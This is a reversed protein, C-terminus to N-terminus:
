TFVTRKVRFVFRGNEAAFERRQGVVQKNPSHMNWRSKDRWNYNVFSRELARKIIDMYYRSTPRNSNVHVTFQVKPNPQFLADRFIVIYVRMVLNVTCIETVKIQTQVFRFRFKSVVSFFKLFTESM